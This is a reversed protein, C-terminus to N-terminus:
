THDAHLHPLLPAYAGLFAESEAHWTHAAHLRRAGEHFAERAEPALMQRLAAVLASADDPDVALGARYRDVFGALPEIGAGALTPVGAAAYEFLKNPLGMRLSETLPRAVIAGVDADPTLARLADPPTFPLLYLEGAAERRELEPALPGEGILVLAAEPTQRMADALPLLGRGERWLGQYLVLSRDDDLGLRQRLAGTRPWGATPADSVNRVVVPRAIGYRLRLADAIADNVTFVVDARAIVRREISGWAWRVWPRGAADLGPYYERADYALKAGSASAVSAMAHLVHLDSAHLVAGGSAEAADRVARHAAWFLTPGRASGLDLSRLSVGSPLADPDRPTGVGIAHVRAGAETLARIQRLARSSATVDGLLGFTVDPRAASPM